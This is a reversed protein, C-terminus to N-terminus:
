REEKMIRKFIKLFKGDTSPDKRAQMLIIEGIFESLYDDQIGFMSKVIKKLLERRKLFRFPREGKEILGMVIERFSKEHLHLFKRLSTLIFRVKEEDDKCANVGSKLENLFEKINERMISLSLNEKSRFLNYLTGISVGSLRAIERMNMGSYGKKLFIERAIKFIEEKKM